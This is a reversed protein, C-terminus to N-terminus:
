EYFSQIFVITLSYPKEKRMDKILIEVFYKNSYETYM